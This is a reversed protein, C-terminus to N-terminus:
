IHVQSRTFIICEGWAKIVEIKPCGELIEKMTFDTLMRCWGVNLWRLNPCKEAIAKLSEESTMRWGKIDLKELTAGSHDLLAMLAEEKLEHNQRLEAVVLGDHGSEKWAKFFEAVGENTLGTKEYMDDEQPPTYDAINSLDLKRVNPCHKLIGQMLTKDTLRIHDELSLSSLGPGIKSLMDIVADDTLSVHGPASLDLSELNQLKSLIPLWSDKLLGFERFRLDRIKPCHEVM